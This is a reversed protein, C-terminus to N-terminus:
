AAQVAVKDHPQEDLLVTLAGTDAARIFVDYAEEMRDLPHTHNFRQATLLQGVAAIRPPTATSRGRHRQHAAELRSAGLDVAAIREPGALRATTVAALGFSGAGVVAVTPEEVAADPLDQWASQGPGHFGFGKMIRGVRTRGTRFGRTTTATGRPAAGVETGPNARLDLSEPPSTHRKPRGAGMAQRIPDLCGGFTVHERVDLRTMARRVGRVPPIVTPRGVDRARADGM